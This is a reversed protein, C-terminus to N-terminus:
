WDPPQVQCGMDKVDGVYSWLIEGSKADVAYIFPSCNRVSVDQWSGDVFYVLHGKIADAIESGINCATDVPLTCTDGSRIYFQTGNEHVFALSLPYGNYKTFLVFKDVHNPAVKRELDTRAINTVDDETLTPKTPIGNAFDSSRPLAQSAYLMSFLVGFVLIIILVASRHGMVFHKQALM